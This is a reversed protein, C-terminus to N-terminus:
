RHKKNEQRVSRIQHKRILKNIQNQVDSNVGM